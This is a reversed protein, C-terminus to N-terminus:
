PKPVSKTIQVSSTRPQTTVRAPAAYLDSIPRPSTQIGPNSYRDRVDMTFLPREPTSTRDRHKYYYLYRAEWHTIPSALAYNYIMDRLKRPLGLLRPQHKRSTLATLPFTM